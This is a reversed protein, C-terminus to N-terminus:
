LARFFLQVPRSDPTLVVLRDPGFGLRELLRVSAANDPDTIAAIRSLGHVNRAREIVVDSAERAYGLGCYDPLFAFGLDADDLGERRVLGCIGMAVGTDRAQVLYLGYGHAGYSTMAGNRVYAAADSVTRVGRDGIFRHFSADNLLMLMFEADDETLERLLLRNTM